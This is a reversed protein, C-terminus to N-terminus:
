ENKEIKRIRIAPNITDTKVKVDVTDTKLKKKDNLENLIQLLEEKTLNKDRSL